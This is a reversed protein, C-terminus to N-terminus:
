SGLVNKYLQFIRKAYIEPSMEKEVWARGREGMKISKEREELITRIRDAFETLNFSEALLGGGSTEIQEKPGTHDFAVVPRGRAFGERVVAPFVDGYISPVIVVNSSDILNLVKERSLFGLISMNSTKHKKLWDFYPGKGAIQLNANPFAKAIKPLLTVGKGFTLTGIFAINRGKPIECPSTLFRSEVPSYLQTAKYGLAKLQNEMSNTKAILLDSKRYISRLFKLYFPGIARLYSKNGVQYTKNKAYCKICELDPFVQSCPELPNTKVYSTMPCVLRYSHLSTLVPIEEKETINLLSFVNLTNIGFLHVIDPSFEDILYKIKMRRKKINLFNKVPNETSIFDKGSIWRVKHGRKELYSLNRRKRGKFWHLIKM